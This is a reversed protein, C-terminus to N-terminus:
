RKWKTFYFPNLIFCKEGWGENGILNFKVHMHTANKVEMTYANHM